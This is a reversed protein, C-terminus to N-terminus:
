GAASIWDTKRMLSLTSAEGVAAPASVASRRTGCAKGSDRFENTPYRRDRGFDEPSRVGPAAPASTSPSTSLRDIRTVVEISGRLWSRPWREERRGANWSRMSCTTLPLSDQDTQNRAVGRDAAPHQHQGSHNVSALRPRSSHIRLALAPCRPRTSTRSRIYRM